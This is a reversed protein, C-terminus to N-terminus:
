NELAGLVDLSPTVPAIIFLSYINEREFIGLDQGNVTDM